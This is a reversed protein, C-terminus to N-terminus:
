NIASKMQFTISFRLKISFGIMRTQQQNMKGTITKKNYSRQGIALDFFYNTPGEGNEVWRCKARFMALKGKEDYISKLEFKLNGYEYQM